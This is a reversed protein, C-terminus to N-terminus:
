IVEERTGLLFPLSTSVGDLIVAMEAADKLSLTGEFPQKLEVNELNFDASLSVCLQENDFTFRGDQRKLTSERGNERRHITNGAIYFANDVEQDFAARSLFLRPKDTYPKGQHVCFTACNGCENCLDDM